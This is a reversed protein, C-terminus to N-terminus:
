ILGMRRLIERAAAAQEPTAKVKARPRRVMREDYQPREIQQQTPWGKSGIKSEASRNELLILMKCLSVANNPLKLVHGGLDLYISNHNHWVSIAWSPKIMDTM